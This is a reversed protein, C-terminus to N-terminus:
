YSIELDNSFNIQRFSRVNGIRSELPLVVKSNKLEDQGGQEKSNKWTAHYVGCLTHISLVYNQIFISDLYLSRNGGHFFFGSVLIPIRNYSSIMVFLCIGEVLIIGGVITIMNPDRGANNNLRSLLQIKRYQCLHM